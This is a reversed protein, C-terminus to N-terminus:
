CFRNLNTLLAVPGANEDRECECGRAFRLGDMGRTLLGSAGILYGVRPASFGCVANMLGKRTEGIRGLRDCRGFSHWTRRETLNGGLQLLLKCLM